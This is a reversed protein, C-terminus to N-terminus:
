EGYVITTKKKYYFYPVSLKNVKTDVYHIKTIGGKRAAKEVSSDGFEVLGLINRTTSEGQKLHSLDLEPNVFEQNNAVSQPYKSGSYIGGQAFYFDSNVGIANAQVPLLIMLSILFLIRAM